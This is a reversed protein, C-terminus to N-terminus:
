RYLNKELIYRYVAPPLYYRFPQGGRIRRRIESSAIELLPADVFRVRARVGPVQRDVAAVDVSDGPRRMVGIERCAAVLEPAFRWTPLDRLSDGGLLLILDASPYLDQMARLTDATYHPGPRDLELRSLEFRPEDQLALQLMVLRHAVPTIAQGLKHPPIPTLVWLVRALRLQACAEQALILHGLHPPDFTGGFVGLRERSM